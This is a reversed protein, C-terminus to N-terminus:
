NKIIVKLVIINIRFFARSVAKLISPKFLLCKRKEWGEQDRKARMGVKEIFKASVKLTM